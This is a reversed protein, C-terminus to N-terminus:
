ITSLGDTMIDKYATLKNNCSMIFDFTKLFIRPYTRSIVPINKVFDTNNFKKDIYM